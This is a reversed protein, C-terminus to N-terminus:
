KLANRIIEAMSELSVNKIMYTQAGAELAEHILDYDVTSTLVVVQIRPFKQRIIRTATVGDMVPMILDMLIIDPHFQEVLSLAQKGDEAEGALELDDWEELFVRLARRVYPHDDVIMVRIARDQM